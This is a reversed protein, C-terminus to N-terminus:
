AAVKVLSDIYRSVGEEVSLFPEEYGARRLASTDAQTFNQYKGKLAEPFALYQILGEQQMQYLALPAEGELTRCTNIVAAAVDNFSQARGTGLNYIGSRDTHDLFYL